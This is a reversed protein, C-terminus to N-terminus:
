AVKFIIREVAVECIKRVGHEGPKYHSKIIEAQELIKVQASINAETQLLAEAIRTVDMSKDRLLTVIRWRTLSSLAKAVKSVDEEPVNFRKKLKISPESM